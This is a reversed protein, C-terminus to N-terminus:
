YASWQRGDVTVYNKGELRIVTSGENQSVIPTSPLGESLSQPSFSGQSFVNQQMTKAILASLSLFSSDATVRATPGVRKLQPGIFKAAVPIHTISPSPIERIGSLQMKDGRLAAGHEPILILLTNQQSQELRAIFNQLDDFLISLRQKYGAVGSKAQRGIVRNGDHLSVSNFLMTQKVTNSANRTQLWRELVAKDCLVPSGDFAKQCVPIGAQSELPSDIGGYVNLQKLFGDFRGDHNMTLAQEYGNNKLQQFILCRNVGDNSSLMDHPTQGCSARLLRTVAPGSYSTASNFNDFVIDFSNLLPHESMGALKIDDWALSCISIFIIDFPATDAAPKALTIHRSQEKQFFQQLYSNLAQDSNLQPKTNSSKNAVSSATIVKSPPFITAIVGSQAIAVSLLGAFAITSLELYRSIYYSAVCLLAVIFLTKLTLYRLLLELTYWWEYEPLNALTTAAANLPIQMDHYLLFIAIALAFSQRLIRGTRGKVQLLLFLAFALNGLIHFQIEGLFFLTAKILFYHSWNGLENLKGFNM